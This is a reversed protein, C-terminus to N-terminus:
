LIKWVYQESRITNGSRDIAEIVIHHRRFSLREWNWEFQADSTQAYLRGNLYLSISEIGSGNDLAYGEITIDGIIITDLNEPLSKWFNGDSKYVYGPLPKEILLNPAITDITCFNWTTGERKVGENDIAV